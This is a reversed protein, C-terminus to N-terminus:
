PGESAPSPHVPLWGFSGGAMDGVALRHDDGKGGIGHFAIFFFTRFCSHVVIEAFRNLQFLHDVFQLFPSWTWKQVSMRSEDGDGM